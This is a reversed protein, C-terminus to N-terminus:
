PAAGPPSGGPDRAAPAAAPATSAPKGPDSAPDKEKASGAERAATSPESSSSKERAESAKASAAHCASLQSQSAAIQSNATSLQGSITAVQGKLSQVESALSDANKQLSQVASESAKLDRLCQQLRAEAGALAEAKESLSRGATQIAEDARQSAQQASQTASNADRAAALARESAQRAREGAERARQNALVAVGRQRAAESQAGESALQAESALRLALSARNLAEQMKGRAHDAETRALEAQRLANETRAQQAELAQKARQLNRWSIGAWLLSALLVVAVGSLLAVRRRQLRGEREVAASLFAREDTSLEGHTRAWSLAEGLQKGSLLYEPHQSNQRWTEVATRLPSQAEEQALWTASFAAAVIQNRVFLRTGEPQKVSRLLGLLELTQLAREAEEDDPIARKGGPVSLAASAGDRLASRPLGNKEALVRRYLALLTPRLAGARRLGEEAFTLSPEERRSAVIESALADVLPSFLGDPLPRTCLAECLRQTFYPQGQTCSLVASLAQESAAGLSHLGPLLAKAEREGFDTLAIARLKGGAFPSTAAELDRGVLDEKRVTGLLCFSVPQPADRAVTAPQPVARALAALFDAAVQPLRLLVEVHDVFLVVPQGAYRPLVRLFRAFREAPPVPKEKQMGAVDTWFDTAVGPLSLGRYLERVLEFFFREGNHSGQGSAEVSRLDLTAPLIGRELAPGRVHLLRQSVAHMLSTKGSQRPAFVYASGGNLLAYFLTDDADRRVYFEGDRVYGGARYRLNQGVLQDLESAVEAMDPRSSPSKALMRAVLADLSEPVSPDLSRLARPMATQHLEQWRGINDRADDIPLEGTLSEFFIMGLAYVDAKADVTAAGAWAEPAMYAPTGLLGGTRVRAGDPGLVKAIGFDLVKVREGGMTFPDKVIMVNDPKLDRHIIGKQHAAALTSALQRLLRLLAARDSGRDREVPMGSAPAGQGSRPPGSTAPSRGEKKAQIWADIRARLSQGELYEMIIFADGGETQGHEFVSVIGPHQVLNTALAETLFRERLEPNQSYQTHLIKIAARSRIREHVAELVLGMGGSGIARVVRYSGVREGITVM